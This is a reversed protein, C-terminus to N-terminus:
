EINERRKQAIFVIFALIGFIALGGVFFFYYSMMKSEETKREGEQYFDRIVEDVSEARAENIFFRLPNSKSVVRGTDDNVVVYVEHEGDTLSKKFEYNWNGYEDVKTTVVVPMDSYIYLTVFEGPIGKGTVSYGEISEDKNIINEIGDVVLDDTKDGSTKPHEIIKNALVASNMPSVKKLIAELSKVEDVETNYASIIPSYGKKIEEGDYFGDNDTDKNFPDTGIEREMDDSLGDEDSDIMIFIPYAQILDKEKTLFTEEKASAIKISTDGDVLPIIKQGESLELQEKLKDIKNINSLKDPDQSKIKETIKEKAVINEIYDEKIIRKCRWSDLGECKIEPSYRKFMYERCEDRNTVGADRCETSIYKDELHERCEDAKFIKNSFCEYSMNKVKLFESCEQANRIGYFMCNEDIKDEIIKQGTDDDIVVRGENIFVNCSDEDFLGEEICKISLGLDKILRNMCDKESLIGMDYCVTPLSEVFLFRECRELDEIGQDKCLPDLSLYTRCDDINNYGKDLCEKAIIIDPKSETKEIITIKFKSSEVVKKNILIGKVFIEYEGPDIGKEIVPVYSSWKNGALDDQNGIFNYINGNGALVFGVRIFNDTSNARVSFGAMKKDSLNDTALDIEGTIDAIINPDPVPTPDIYPEYETPPIYNDPEPIIGGDPVINNPTKDIYFSIPDSKYLNNNYSFEVFTKYNGSVYKDSSIDINRIWEYNTVSLSNTLYAIPTDILRGLDRNLISFKFAGNLVGGATSDIKITLINDKVTARLNSFTINLDTNDVPDSGSPNVTIDIFNSNYIEGNFGVKARLQYDGSYGATDIIKNWFSEGVSGQEFYGVLTKYPIGSKYIDFKFYDIESSAKNVSGSVTLDDGSNIVLGSTPGTLMVVPDDVTVANNISFAVEGSAYTTGGYDFSTKVTYAGSSFDVSNFSATWLQNGTSYTSATGSINVLDGTVINRVIFSLNSIASANMNTNASLNVQGSVASGATPSLINSVPSIAPIPNTAPVVVFSFPSSEYIKGSVEAQAIAFYNGNFGSLDQAYAWQSSNTNNIFASLSPSTAIDMTGDSIIFKFSTIDSSPKDIQAVFNAVGDSTFNIINPSIITIIPNIIVPNTATGSSSNFNIGVSNLVPGTSDTLDAIINLHAQYQVYRDGDIVCSNSSIDSGDAVFSCSSWDNVGSMDVNNSTRVKIAIENNHNFDSDISLTTFENNQVTDKISSTFVTPLASTQVIDANGSVSILYPTAAGDTSPYFTIQYWLYRDGFTKCSDLSLSGDVSTRSISCVGTSFDPEVNSDSTKIKISMNSGSPFDGDWSLSKWDYYDYISYDADLYSAYTGSPNFGIVSSDRVCLTDITTYSKLARNIIGNGFNKFFAQDVTLSEQDSWYMKSFISYFSKNSYICNLEGISPLRGGISKCVNRSPFFNFDINNNGSVLKGGLCQPSLCAMEPGWELGSFIQGYVQINDNLFCPGDMWSSQNVNRSLQVFTDAVGTTNEETDLFNGYGWGGTQNPKAVIHGSDSQIMSANVVIKNVGVGDNWAISNPVISQAILYHNIGSKAMFLSAFVAIIGLPILIVLFSSLKRIVNKLM